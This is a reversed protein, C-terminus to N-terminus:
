STVTPYPDQKTFHQLQSAKVELFRLTLRKGARNVLEVDEMTPINAGQFNAFQLTPNGEDM